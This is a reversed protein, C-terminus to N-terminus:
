KLSEGLAKGEFMADIVSERKWLYSYRDIYGMDWAVPCIGRRVCEQVYHKAHAECDSENDGGTPLTRCTAGWEGLVVPIGKDIFLTKLSEFDASLADKDDQTGWDYDVYASDDPALCFFYPSYSHISVILKDDNPLVLSSATGLNAGYPSVMIQRNLNNGGTSRIAEVSAAHLQNVCDQGEATGGSWEMSDGVLRPENISEFILRENYKEFYNAIQKWVAKLQVKSAELTAYSPLIWEDDHHIDLIVWMNNRMGYMVVEDVRELWETEIIYDPGEGMHTIWSVPVRFTKFGKAAVADILEQTAVPNGWWTEYPADLTNTLNWGIGMQAVINMPSTEVIDGIYGDPEVLPEDPEDPEEPEETSPDDQRNPGGVEESSCNALAISFTAILTLLLIKKM